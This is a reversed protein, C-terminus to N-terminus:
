YRQNFDVEGKLAQGGQLAALNDIFLRAMLQPVLPGAVHGTIALGPTRWFPHDLPLPEERFVDLVALALREEQLALILAEDVLANGRGVNIFVAGPKLVQFFRQDYVNTTSPTDPLISVVYDADAAVAQLDALAVVTDFGEIPRARSAVGTIGVGFPRLFQAVERGIDGAGVILVQKGALTPALRPDWQRQSQSLARGRLDQVHSLLHALVYEAIPQGFVGVARSLRYDRPLGEGLLPQYGAWTSQLWQPKFGQGLLVAARAPDALWLQCRGPDVDGVGPEVIELAPLAAQILPRLEDARGDALLLVSPM